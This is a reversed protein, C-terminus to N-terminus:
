TVWDSELTGLDGCKDKLKLDKPFFFFFLGLVTLAFVQLNQCCVVQLHLGHISTFRSTM